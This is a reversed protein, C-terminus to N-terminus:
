ISVFVLIVFIDFLTVYEVSKGRIRNKIPEFVDIM